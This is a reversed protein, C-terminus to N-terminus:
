RNCIHTLFIMDAITKFLFTAIHRKKLYMIKKVKKRIQWKKM